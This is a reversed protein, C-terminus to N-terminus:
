KAMLSEFVAEYEKAMQMLSFRSVATDRAAAGMRQLVEPDNSLDRIKGAFEDVDDITCLRGTVGDDLLEPLSSARTTVVPTGCAMAEAVAYGFGEFRSPFLVIDAKRYADRLEDRTLKGLPKMNELRALNPPTRLGSTYQLEFAPGLREMIKPLLDAGKRRILNGVFLLKIRSGRSMEKTDPGPCFYETDIGNLIVHAKPGGLALRTSEATYQSCTVLADAAKLSALEYRRLLLNHFLAQQKSRYPAFSPDHVCHLEVIALRYAKRQFAFGIGSNCVAIDVNKPPVFYRLPGPYYQWNRSFRTEVVDHGLRRLATALNLTFVDSGSGGFVYPLWIKM